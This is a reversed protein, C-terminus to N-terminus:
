MAEFLPIFPSLIMRNYPWVEDPCVEAPCVEAPCVEALCFEAPCVESPCVESTCVEALCFEALCFEAPCDNIFPSIVPPCCSTNFSYITKINRRSIGCSQHSESRRSIRHFPRVRARHFIAELLRTAQM